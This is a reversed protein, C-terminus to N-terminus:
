EPIRAALLSATSPSPQSENTENHTKMMAKERPKPYSNILRLSRNEINLLVLKSLGTGHSITPSINEDSTLPNAEDIVPVSFQIRAKTTVIVYGYKLLNMPMLAQKMIKVKM